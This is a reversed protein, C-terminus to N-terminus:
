VGRLQDLAIELLGRKEVFSIDTDYHVGVGSMHNQELFVSTKHSVLVWHMVIEDDGDVVATFEKIARELASRAANYKDIYQQTYNGDEDLDGETM